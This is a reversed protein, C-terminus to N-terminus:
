YEFSEIQKKDNTISHEVRITDLALGGYPYM